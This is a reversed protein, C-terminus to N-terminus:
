CSIKYSAVADMGKLNMGDIVLQVDYTGATLPPTFSDSVDKSGAGKFNVSNTPLTGNQDTEFHWDLKIAGNVTITATITSPTIPGMCGPVAIKDPDVSVSVDTVVVPSATSSPLVVTPPIAVVQIGSLDGTTTAFSSSIWCFSGQIFPNKVHLWSGDPIKGVIEATQGPNLIVVVLWSTDPGFRCNLPQGNPSALPVTSTSLTASAVAATTASPPPSTPFSTETSVATAATILPFNCALILVSFIALIMIRLTKM